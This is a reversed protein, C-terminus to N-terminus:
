NAFQYPNIIQDPKKYSTSMYGVPNEIAIKDCNALAFHMFFVAARARDDWRKVVKEAPTAKLSFARTAANTLYTCPPHAIIMDWQGKIDHEVGDCTQFECDGNLLPLVDQKVYKINVKEGDFYEIFFGGGLAFSRELLQNGATFFNAVKLIKDLKEECKKDSCSIAVKETITLDAWDQCVTEAMGLSKRAQQVTKKGQYVKYKHFGPVNGVYWERWLRLEADINAPQEIKLGKNKLFDIIQKNM